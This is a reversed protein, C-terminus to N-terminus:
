SDINRTLFISQLQVMASLPENLGLVAEVNYLLALYVVMSVDLSIKNLTAKKKM